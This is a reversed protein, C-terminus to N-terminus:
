HFEEHIMMELKARDILKINSRSVSIIESEQLIGLAENATQRSLGLNDAIIDQSIPIHSVKAGVGRYGDFVIYLSWAVKNINSRGNLISIFEEQLNFAMNMYEIISMCFSTSKQMLEQIDGREIEAFSSDENLLLDFDSLEAYIVKNIPLVFGDRVLMFVNRQGSYKYKKLTLTGSLLIILKRQVSGKRLIIDNKKTKKLKAKTFLFERDSENLSRIWPSQELVNRDINM